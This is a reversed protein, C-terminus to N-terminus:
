GPSRWAAPPEWTALPRVCTPPSAPCRRWSRSPLCPCSCASRAIVVAPRSFLIFELPQDVLGSQMLAGNMVGNTGLLTRWAYVRVLYSAMLATVVLLFLLQRGRGTGFVIYYAVSYGGVICLAMTPVAIALTTLTVKWTIADTFVEVYNAFSPEGTPSAFVWRFLSDWLLIAAPVVVLAVLGLALPALLATGSARGIRM